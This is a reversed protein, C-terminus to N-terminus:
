MFEELFKNGPFSFLEWLVPTNKSSLSPQLGDQKDKARGKRLESTQAASLSTGSM